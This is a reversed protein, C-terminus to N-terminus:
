ENENMYGYGVATKAGIGHEKFTKKLWYNAVSSLKEITNSGTIKFDQTEFQEFEGEDLEIETKEVSLFTQFESGAGVTLFHIPNPSQTDTPAFDKKNYWDPYHVNMIDVELQPPKTPLADFFKVLGQYESYKDDFKLAVTGPYTAYNEKADSKDKLKPKNNEFIVQDINKPCGFLYCFVPNQYARYEANVLPYNEETEYINKTFIETIIFSRVTGKISSAPIYPFGYIHHLTIGTEYVSTGGGGVGVIMRWDPSFKLIQSSYVKAIIKQREINADLMKQDFNAKIKYKNGFENGDKNRRFDNRFFTFKGTNEDYRAAKYFKLAFNDIEDIPLKRVNSPLCTENISLSDRFGDISVPPTNVSQVPINAFNKDYLVKGNVVLRTITGNTESYECEADHYEIINPIKQAFSLPMPNKNNLKDLEVIIAGRQSKYVKLKGKAM